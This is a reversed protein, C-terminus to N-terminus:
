FNRICNEYVEELKRTVANLDFEHEVLAIRERVLRGNMREGIAEVIAHALDGPEPDVVYGIREVFDAIGCKRTVIVPTGCIAAELVTIGFVEYRSPLVYADADVYAEIKADKYLPGTMIVRDEIGLASAQSALVSLLGDDPGALVLRADKLKGVTLAFADVLLDLGKIRHIRGLYLVMPSDLSIGSKKRFTGRQPLDEFESLNIGNPVIRIRDKNVGMRICQEEEMRNLAIV